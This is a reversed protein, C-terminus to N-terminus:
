SSPPARRRRQRPREQQSSGLVPLGARRLLARPSARAPAAQQQQEVAGPQHQQQQQQQQQQKLGQLLQKPSGATPQCPHLVGAEEFRRMLYQQQPQHDGQLKGWEKVHVSVLSYGRVALARDRHQTSGMLGGDPRRFHTPGDAEVAVLVGGATRGAIDLLLAGDPTVGGRGVSLQEMQPQQQWAIPLQQVAAFVCRQFDTHRTGAANQLAQDWAARCQQLQQETLSGQLGQGGAMQFDLRWTHVQWLQQQGEKELTSSWISSCARALQLVQQAHQQLDLVAMAWCLNCLNQSNLSRSIGDPGAAALRQQAEALLGAMLQENRHGLQGCAWAAIALDQPTGAEQPKAQQLMGVFAGLLQQLQGLPVQQGMSAVAWLTNTVEQPKAQQLMGVFAHLLQQLQEVPVQQGMSAVARPTNTVAQPTAQQLQGAFAALLQQVIEEPLQQGSKAVGYLVNSIGQAGAEACKAVLAPLLQQQLTAQQQLRITPPALCLAHVVNSLSRAPTLPLQLFRQVCVAYAEPEGCQLKSLRSIAASLNYLPMRNIHQQILPLLERQLSCATIAATVAQSEAHGYSQLQAAVAEAAAAAGAATGAGQTAAAPRPGAAAAALMAAAAMSWAGGAVRAEAEAEAAAAAAAAAEVVGAATVAVVM